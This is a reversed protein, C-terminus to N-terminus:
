MDIGKKMQVKFIVVAAVPFINESEFNSQVVMRKCIGDSMCQLVGIQENEARIRQACMYRGGKHIFATPKHVFTVQWHKHARFALALTSGEM